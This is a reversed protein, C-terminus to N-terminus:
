AVREWDIAKTAEMSPSYTHGADARKRGNPHRKFPKTRGALPKRLVLREGDQYLCMGSTWECRRVTAGAELAAEAERWNM